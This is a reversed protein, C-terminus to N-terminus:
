IRMDSQHEDIEFLIPDTKVHVSARAYDLMIVEHSKHLTTRGCVSYEPVRHEHIEDTLVSAVELPPHDDCDVFSVHVTGLMDWHHPLDILLHLPSGLVDAGFASIVEPGVPDLLSWM